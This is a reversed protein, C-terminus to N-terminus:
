MPLEPSRRRYRNKIARVLDSLAQRIDSSYKRSRSFSGASHLSSPYTPNHYCTNPGNENLFLIADVAYKSVLDAHKRVLYEYNLHWLGQKSRFISGGRIRYRFLPEPLMVGRIDNALLSVTSEWDDLFMRMKPDHQGYRLYAQRRLVLGQCNTHNFLFQAPPEPNFTPWWRITGTDDFDENWSGVFGVNSYRELVQICRSYYQPTVLDDADLLAVFEGTAAQVGVNRTDAVGTNTKRIVRVASEMKEIEDVKQRSAPDTSGDDVIIIELPRYSAEVVSKVTEGVLNGLNYHPIIVSLLGASEDIGRGVVRSDGRIFPYAKPMEHGATVVALKKAWTSHPDCVRGIAQRAAHGMAAAGRVDLADLALVCRCVDAPDTPDFLLASVGDEIIETHGGNRSAAVVGGISMQEIVTYPLNDNLSPHFQAHCGGRIDDLETPSVSGAFSLLGAEICGRHKRGLFATLSEGHIHSHTDSGYVTLTSKGGGQWYIEFGSLLEPIGKFHHVRSAVMYRRRAGSTATSRFLAEHDLLNAADRRFPNPIVSMERAAAGWDDVLKHRLFASPSIVTDAAKICFREMEGIWYDPLKHTPEGSWQNILSIPTHATVVIATNALTKEGALKFQIPYYALGFGDCFEVFDPAPETNLLDRLLLAFSYSVAAWRGMYKFHEGGSPNVRLLSSTTGLETRISENPRLTDDFCVVTVDVGVTEAQIVCQHLYTGM